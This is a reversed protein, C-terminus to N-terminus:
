FILMLLIIVAFIGVMWKYVEKKEPIKSGGKQEMILQQMILDADDKAPARSGDGLIKEIPSAGKQPVVLRQPKPLVTAASKVEEISDVSKTNVHEAQKIVEILEILKKREQWPIQAISAKDQPNIQYSKGAITININSESM